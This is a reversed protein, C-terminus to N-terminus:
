VYHDQGATQHYSMFMYKTEEANVELGFEKIANIFSKNEKM